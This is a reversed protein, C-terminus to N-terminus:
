SESQAPERAPVGRAYRCLAAPVDAWTIRLYRGDGGREFLWTGERAHPRLTVLHADRFARAGLRAAAWGALALGAFILIVM